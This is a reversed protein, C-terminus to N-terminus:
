LNVDTCDTSCTFALSFKDTKPPVIIGNFTEGTGIVFIGFENKKYNTTTYFRVGSFDQINKKLSPNNYHIELLFYKEANESGGM